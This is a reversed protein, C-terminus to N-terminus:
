RLHPGDSPLLKVALWRTGVTFSGGFPAANCGEIRRVWLSLHNADNGNPWKSCDGYFYLGDHGPAMQFEFMGMDTTMEYFGDPAGAYPEHHVADIGLQGYGSVDYDLFEVYGELTWSSQGDTRPIDLDLIKTWNGCITSMSAPQQESGLTTVTVPESAIAEQIPLLDNRRADRPFSVGETVVGGLQTSGGLSRAWLQLEHQGGGVASRHDFTTVSEPLYSPLAITGSRESPAGDLSWRLMLRARPSSEAGITLSSQLALDLTRAADISLPEGIPMWRAGVMEGGTTSRRVSPYQNPSGQATIWQLSIVARNTEPGDLIRMWMSYVYAGAPLDQVTGAFRESQPYHGGFHRLQTAVIRSEPDDASAGLRLQIEYRSGVAPIIETDYDVRLSARLLLNVTTAPHINTESYSSCGTQIKTWGHAPRYGVVTHDAIPLSWPRTLDETYPFRTGEVGDDSGAITYHGNGICDATLAPTVLLAAALALVTKMNM